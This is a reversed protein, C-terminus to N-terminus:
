PVSLHFKNSPKIFNRFNKINILYGIDMITEVAALNNWSKQELTNKITHPGYVSYSTDSLISKGMLGFYFKDFKIDKFKKTHSIHYKIWNIWISM